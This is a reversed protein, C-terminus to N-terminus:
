GGDEKSLEQKSTLSGYFSTSKRAHTHDDLIFNLERKQIHKQGDGTQM